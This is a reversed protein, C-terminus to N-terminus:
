TLRTRRLFDDGLVEKWIDEVEKIKTFFRHGGIDFYYNKYNATRSIGGVTQDKELVISKVGAKSLQYSATLGAPGGGIVVVKKDNTENVPEEMKTRLFLLTIDKKVSSEITFQRSTDRIARVM